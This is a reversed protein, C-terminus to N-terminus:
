ETKALDKFEQATTEWHLQDAMHPPIMRGPRRKSEVPEQPAQLQGTLRKEVSHLAHYVFRWMMEDETCDSRDKGGGMRESAVGFVANLPADIQLLGEKDLLPPYRNAM